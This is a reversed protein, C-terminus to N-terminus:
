RVCDSFRSELTDGDEGATPGQTVLTYDIRRKKPEGQVLEHMKNQVTSEDVDKPEAEELKQELGRLLDVM